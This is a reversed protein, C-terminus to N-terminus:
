AGMGSQVVRRRRWIGATGRGRAFLARDTCGHLVWFFPEMLVVFTDTDVATGGGAEHLSSLYMEAIHLRLGMPASPDAIVLRTVAATFDSVMDMDWEAAAMVKFTEVLVQTLLNYFKDLRLRDIGGWERKMMALLACFFMLNRQEEDEADFVHILKAIDSALKNQIKPKDSMWMCYFIGKMLKDMDLETIAAGRSLWTRLAGMAKDRVKKEHHALSQGFKRGVDESSSM